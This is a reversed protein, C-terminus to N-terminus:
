GAREKEDKKVIRVFVAPIIAGSDSSVVDFWLISPMAGLHLSHCKSKSVQEEIFNKVAAFSVSSDSSGLM